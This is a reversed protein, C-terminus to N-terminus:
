VCAILMSEKSCITVPRGEKRVTGQRVSSDSPPVSSAWTLSPQMRLCFCMSVVACFVSSRGCTPASSLVRMAGEPQPVHLRVM